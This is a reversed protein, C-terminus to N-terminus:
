YNPSQFRASHASTPYPVTQFTFSLLKIPYGPGSFRGLRLAFAFGRVGGFGIHSQAVDVFEVGDFALDFRQTHGLTVAN